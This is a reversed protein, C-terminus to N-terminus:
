VIGILARGWRGILSTKSKQSMLVRLPFNPPYPLNVKLPMHIIQLTIAQQFPYFFLLPLEKMMKVWIDPNLGAVFLQIAVGNLATTIGMDVIKPIIGCIVAQMDKYHPM